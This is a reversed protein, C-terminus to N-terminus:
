NLKSIICLMNCLLAICQPFCYMIPSHDSTKKRNKQPTKQKNKVNLLNWKKKCLASFLNPFSQQERLDLGYWGDHFAERGILDSWWPQQIIWHVENCIREQKAHTVGNWECSAQMMVVPTCSYFSKQYLFHLVKLGSTGTVGDGKWWKVLKKKEYEHQANSKKGSLHVAGHCCSFLLFVSCTVCLGSTSFSSVWYLFYCSFCQAAVKLQLCQLFFQESPNRDGRSHNIICM